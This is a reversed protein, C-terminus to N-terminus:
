NPWGWDNNSLTVHPLGAYLRTYTQFRHGHEGDVFGSVSLEKAMGDQSAARLNSHNQSMPRQFAQMLEILMSPDGRFIKGGTPVFTGREATTVASPHSITWVGEGRFYDNFVVEQGANRLFIEGWPAIVSYHGSTIMMTEGARLRVQFTPQGGPPFLFDRYNVAPTTIDFFDQLELMAPADVLLNDQIWQLTADTVDINWEDAHAIVTEPAQRSLAITEMAAGVIDPRAAMAAPVNGAQVQASVAAAAAAIEAQTFNADPAAAAIANATNTIDLALQSTVVTPAPDAAVIPATPAEPQTVVPTEPQTVPAVPPQTVVPDNNGTPPNLAVGPDGSCATLAFVLIVALLTAGLIRRM